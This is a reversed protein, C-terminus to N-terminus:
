EDGKFVDAFDRAMSVVRWNRGAASDLVRQAGERYAFERVADDHELLLVLARRDAAAAFRLLQLDGDSNGVAILPRRGTALRLNVAKFPGVNLSTSGPARIVETVGAHEELRYRGTSGIVREPPLDLFSIAIARVFETSGGSVVWVAFGNVELLRVLERMPQYVLDAWPRGLVPHRASRVFDRAAADLEAQPVGAQVAQALPGLSRIGLTQLRAVDGALVFSFPEQTQWEPHAAAQGRVRAHIFEEQLAFPKEPLLTGDNDFVALREPAPVFDPSAPDTVAAVFDLIATKNDGARWSPLPDALPLTACGSLLVLLAAAWLGPLRLWKPM